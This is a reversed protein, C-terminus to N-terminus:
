RVKKRWAARLNLFRSYSKLGDKVGQSKLYKEYIKESIESLRGEDKKWNKRIALLDARMGNSVLGGLARAATRDTRALEGAATSWYSLFGSYRVAAVASSECALLALFNADGEDAIGYGHAMEHAMTFPIEAATLNASIYSEGLYPLYIGSGSFRMMWRGPVFTRVRVRGPAPYVMDRLVRTLGARIESELGPPLFDPSLAANSAARPIEARSATAARVAWETEAAVVPTELASIALRLHTAIGPRNYNYGWLLYFFFILGGAWAAVNLGIQSLRKL